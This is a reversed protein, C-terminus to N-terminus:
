KEKAKSKEKADEQAATASLAGASMAVDEIGGIRRAETVMKDAYLLQELRGLKKRDDRLAHKMDDLKARQRFTQMAWPQGALATSPTTGEEIAATAADSATLGLAYVSPEARLCLDVLFDVTMEELVNVSEPLPNPVDGYAYMLLRLDKHFLGPQHFPRRGRASNEAADAFATEAVREERAQTYRQDMDYPTLRVGTTFPRYPTTPAM